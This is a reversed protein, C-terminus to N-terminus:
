YMASIIHMHGMCSGREVSILVVFVIDDVRSISLKM